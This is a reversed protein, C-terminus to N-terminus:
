KNEEEDDEVMDPRITADEDHEDVLDTNEDLMITEDGRTETEAESETEEESETESETSSAYERLATEEEHDFDDVGGTLDFDPEGIDAVPESGRAVTADEENSRAADTNAAMVTNSIVTMGAEDMEPMVFEFEFKHLRIKDGHKLRTESTIMQDNVYTGNISGQDIIWYAFDKYEILCHRRGITTEPIVIYNLHDTDHGAVRGLMTPKNGLKYSPQNTYSHIDNLFAEQAYEEEASKKRSGRILMLVMILVAIILVALAILIMRSRLEEEEDLGQPLVPVEIIVPEPPTYERPEPEPEPVPEPEPQEVVVPEPEPVKNIIESIQEFVNALDEPQLARYYEGDTKQALSQILQFDAKETFAIGFIQIESDAADAALDQKLWRSKELDQEANGTDVIGDTMFIILKKAEERGNSKLDYIAREIAAPSDTFQGKYNISELSSLITQRNQTNVETLPVALKVAQDFIIVAVRSNEDMRNIFENVAQSALFQPDNKKMSGSNDLVIFVDKAVPGQPVQMMEAAAEEQPMGAAGSDIEPAGTDAATEDAFPDTETTTDAPTATGPQEGAGPPTAEEGEGLAQVAELASDTIKEEIQEQQDQAPLPQLGFLVVALLLFLQQCPKKMHAPELSFIHLSLMNDPYDTNNM